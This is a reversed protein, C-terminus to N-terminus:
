LSILWQKLGYLVPMIKTMKAGPGMHGVRIAKGALKGLGGAVQIGYDDCLFSIFESETHGDPPLVVTVIGSAEEDAGLVQLGLDRVGQRFAHGVNKHRLFRAQLGEQLIKEMSARLAIVNSVAMTIYYPQVDKGEVAADKWKLLNLYWGRIPTKRARMHKWARESVSVLTLGPPAELCKQSAAICVDVGWEDVRLDIGGISSVGDVVLLVGHKRCVEAIEKIPNMLGTSTENHVLALVKADSNRLIAKEVQDPKVAKGWEVEVPHVHVDHAEALESIRHGFHGTEVVIVKEGPEVMSCIVSEVGLHGSGVNIFLDNQTQFIRKATEITELYFRTWETGYHAVVPSAMELMVDADVSVPGPIMLDYTRGHMAM